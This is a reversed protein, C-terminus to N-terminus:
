ASLAKQIIAKAITPNEELFAGVAKGVISSVPGKVEPTVLKTTDASNFRPRVMRLSVLATIGRRFKKGDILDDSLGKKRAFQNIARTLGSKFGSLHTGGNYQPINNTFCYINEEEGQNHQFSVEIQIPDNGLTYTQHHYFIVGYLPSKNRYENIYVVYEQSGSPYYFTVPEKEHLEDYWIIAVEKNLFALERIYAVFREPEYVLNGVEDLALTFITKDPLWRQITGTEEEPCEGVVQLPETVIGREFSIRHIKGERKVTTKMWDSLANVCSADVGYFGAFYKFKSHSTIRGFMETMELEVIPKGTQANIGVPIGRGNDEVSVSSDQHLTVRIQDCYESMVEDISNPIMTKFLHFLGGQDTTGIYMGPRYRISNPFCLRSISDAGYDSTVKDVSPTEVDDTEVELREIKPTDQTAKEPELKEENAMIKRRFIM